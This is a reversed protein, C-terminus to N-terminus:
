PDEEKIGLIGALVQLVDETEQGFAELKKRVAAVEERTLDRDEMANWLTMYAVGAAQIAERAEKRLRPWSVLLRLLVQVLGIALKVKGNLKTMM